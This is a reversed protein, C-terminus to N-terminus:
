RRGKTVYSYRAQLWMIGRLQVVMKAAFFYFDKTFICRLLGAYALSIAYFCPQAGANKGALAVAM